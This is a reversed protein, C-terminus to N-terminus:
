ILCCRCLFCIVITGATRDAFSTAGFVSCLLRIFRRFRLFLLELLIWFAATSPVRWVTRFNRLRRKYHMAHKAAEGASRTNKMRTNIIVIIIIVVIVVIIIITVIVIFVIIIIVDVAVVLVVVITFVVVVAQWSLNSLYALLTRFLCVYSVHLYDTHMGSRKVLSSHDAECHSYKQIPSYRIEYDKTLTSVFRIWVSLKRPSSLAFQNTLSSKSTCSYPPLPANCM